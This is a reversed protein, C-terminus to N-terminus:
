QVNVVVDKKLEKGDAYNVRASVRWPGRMSFKASAAYKGDGQSTAIGQQTGMNMTTMNVDVNVKANDVLKGTTDRVTIVFINNGLAPPNQQATLEVQSQTIPTQPGKLILYAGTVIVGFIVLGILNAHKRM